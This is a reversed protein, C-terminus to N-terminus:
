TAFYATAAGLLGLFAGLAVGVVIRLLTSGAAAAIVEAAPLFGPRPAGGFLAIEPLSVAAVRQLPPFLAQNHRAIALMQWALACALWTAVRTMGAGVPRTM